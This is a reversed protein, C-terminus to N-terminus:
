KFVMPQIDSDVQKVDVAEKYAANECPCIQM